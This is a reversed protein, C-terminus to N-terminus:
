EPSDNSFYQTCLPCFTTTKFPVASSVTLSKLLRLGETFVTTIWSLMRERSKYHALLIILYEVKIRKLDQTYTEEFPGATSFLLFSPQAISSM